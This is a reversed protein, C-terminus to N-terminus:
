SRMCPPTNAAHWAALFAAAPLAPNSEPHREAADGRTSLVVAAAGAVIGALVIVALARVVWRRRDGASRM